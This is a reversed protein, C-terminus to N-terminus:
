GSEAMAALAIYPTVISGLAVAFAVKFVIFASTTVDGFDALYLGAAALPGATVCTCVAIRLARPLLSHTKDVIFECAMSDPPLPRIRGRRVDLRVALTCVVTTVLPLVFTTAVTDGITSPRWPTPTLLSVSHLGRTGAWAIALNVVVNIVATVGLANVALWRRNPGPISRVDAALRPLCALDGPGAPGTRFLHLIRHSM